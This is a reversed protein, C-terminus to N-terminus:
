QRWTWVWRTEEHGIQGAHARAGLLYLTLRAALLNTLNQHDKGPAIEVVDFGVNRRLAV